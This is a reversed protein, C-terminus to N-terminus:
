GAAAPVGGKGQLREQFYELLTPWDTVGDAELINFAVFLLVAGFTVEAIGLAPALQGGVAPVQGVEPVNVSYARGTRTMTVVGALVFGTGFVGCIIRVWHNPVFFWEIGKEIHELNNVFTGMVGPLGSLSPLNSIVQLAQGLLGGTPDGPLPDATLVINQGGGGTGGGGTGGGGTGGGAGALSAGGVGPIRGFGVPTGGSSMPFKGVKTGTELAQIVTNGGDYIAVHGPSAATGDSGAYFVLDGPKLQARSIHQVFKWQEESTRPVGKIGLKQAVYQVLGSCDFGKPSEGGWLYPTGFFKMAEDVIAQGGHAVSAATTKVNGQLFKKYAGSTFTVWPTFKDGANRYKAVAMRANTHPDFANGSFPNGLIQWLGTAGSPNQANSNGGSEAEAIAAAIPAVASPGGAGVWLQELQRYSFVSGSDGPLM